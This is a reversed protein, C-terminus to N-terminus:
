QLKRICEDYEKDYIENFRQKFKEINMINPVLDDQLFSLSNINSISSVWIRYDIYNNALESPPTFLTAFFHLIERITNYCTPHIFDVSMFDSFAYYSFVDCAEKFDNLEIGTYKILETLINRNGYKKVILGLETNSTLNKGYDYNGNIILYEIIDNKLKDWNFLKSEGSYRKFVKEIQVAGVYNGRINILNIILIFENYIKVKEGSVTSPFNKYSDLINKSM